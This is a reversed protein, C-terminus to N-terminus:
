CTRRPLMRASLCFSVSIVAGRQTKADNVPETQFTSGEPSTMTISLLPPLERRLSLAPLVNRTSHTVDRLCRLCRFLYVPVAKNEKSKTPDVVRPQMAENAALNIETAVHM